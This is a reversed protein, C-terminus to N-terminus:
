TPHDGLLLRKIQGEERQAREYDAPRGIDLWYGDHRWSHIPAGAALLDRMLEDFGYPGDPPIRSLVGRSFAYVGMSVDHHSVPKEHFNTIQSNSDIDVVGYDVTHSRSTVAVSVDAGSQTHEHLFAGVDIDTLVDGNVVLFQEPLDPILRLPAVTSLPERERVYRVTLGYRSGDGIVAEILHALHNVSLYVTTVGRRALAQLLLELVARDGLPVLPKPVVATYPALRRGAGGALVVAVM